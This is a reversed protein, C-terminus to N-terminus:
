NPRALQIEYTTPQDQVPSVKLTAVDGVLQYDFPRGSVPDVPIVVEDVDNLAKPLRDEHSAAYLRLAEVIRLIAIKRDLSALRQLANMPFSFQSLPGLIREQQASLQAAKTMKEVALGSGSLLDSAFWWKVYNDRADEFTRVVYTLVVQSEPMAAVAEPDMGREILAQKAVPYEKLSSQTLSDPSGEPAPSSGELVWYIDKWFRQLSEKWEQPSKAVDLKRVEPFSSFSYIEAEVGKRLDILPRPLMTLAWYLNPAEPQQVFEFLQETMLESIAIGVLGNVITEGEATHRGLAFGTQFTTIAEDLEEQAILIRVRTALIRAFNRLEQVEPLRMGHYFGERVPLQWDCTECCAAKRLLTGINYLPMDLQQLRLDEVSITRWNEWQSLLEENQFVGDEEATVKGYFVAANGPFRDIFKPLLEYNLAPKPVAAPYIKLEVTPVEESRGFRTSASILFAFIIVIRLNRPITM